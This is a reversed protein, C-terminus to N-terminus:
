DSALLLDRSRGEEVLLEGIAAVIEAATLPGLKPVVARLRICVADVDAREAETLRDYARRRAAAREDAITM